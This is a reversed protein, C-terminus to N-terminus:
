GPRPFLANIYILTPATAALASTARRPGEQRGPRDQLHPNTREGNVIKESSEARGTAPARALM